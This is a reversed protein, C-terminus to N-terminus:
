RFRRKYLMKARLMKARLMNEQVYSHWDDIVMIWTEYEGMTCYVTVRLQASWCVAALHCAQSTARPAADLAFVLAGLNVVRPTTRAFNALARARKCVIYTIEQNNRKREKSKYERMAREKKCQLNVGVVLYLESLKGVAGACRALFLCNLRTVRSGLDGVHELLSVDQCANRGLSLKSHITPNRRRGCDHFLADHQRCSLLKSVSEMAIAVMLGVQHLRALLELWCGQHLEGIPRCQIGSRKSGFLIMALCGVAEIAFQRCAEGCWSVVLISLSSREQVWLSNSNCGLRRSTDAV